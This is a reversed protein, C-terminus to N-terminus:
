ILSNLEGKLLVKELLFYVGVPWRGMYSAWIQPPSAESTLTIGGARYTHEEPQELNAKLPNKAARCSANGQLTVLTLLSHLTHAQNAPIHLHIARTLRGGCSQWSGRNALLIIHQLLM